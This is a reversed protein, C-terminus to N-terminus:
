RANEVFWATTEDDCSLHTHCRVLIKALPSPPPAPSRTVRQLTLEARQHRATLFQARAARALRAELSVPPLDHAELSAQRVGQDGAV